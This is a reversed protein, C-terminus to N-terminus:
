KAAATLPQHEGGAAQGLDGQQAAIEGCGSGLAAEAEGGDGAVQHEGEGL